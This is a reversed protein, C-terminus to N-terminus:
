PYASACSIGFRYGGVNNIMLNTQYGIPTAFCASCGGHHHRCLTGHGREYSQGSVVVNFVDVTLMGQDAFGALAEEPLLIGSLLLLTLGASMIIDASAWTFAMM